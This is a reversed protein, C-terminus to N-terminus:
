VDREREELCGSEEGCLGMYWGRNLMGGNYGGLHEEHTKNRGVDKKGDVSGWCVTELSV